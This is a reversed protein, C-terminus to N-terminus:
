LNIGCKLVIKHMNLAKNEIPTYKSNASSILIKKKSDILHIQDIGRLLRQTNLFNKFKNKDKKLIASNKNIDFAILVIDSEIKNKKDDVYNKALEYSNNVVTTIKQDFYKELAFSFIFLSFISILLSPILTFLSFSVIYKRNAVSGKVNINNKISNKIDIFITIFFILLLIIDSILLIKLNKDNLPIFSKDIFTLFTLFGVFLTVFFILIIFINKKIFENM